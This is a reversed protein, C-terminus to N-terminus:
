KLEISRRASATLMRTLIAAVESRQINSEPNFTGAADSGILIGARYFAYIRAAYPDSLKVDPIANDAVENIVAYESEAIAGYFINVFDARSAMIDAEASLDATIIGHELAYTMYTAYWDGKGVELTVTGNHYLQHLCAALKIVEAFTINAGPEFTTATKGNILGSKCAAEVDPRYWADAPVDSFPFVFDDGDGTKPVPTVPTTTRPATGKVSVSIEPDKGTNMDFVITHTGNRLTALYEKTLTYTNGDKTYDTGEKLVTDGNKVQMLTGSGPTLTVSLDQNDDNGSSKSFSGTTKDLTSPVVPAAPAATGGGSGGGGGGGGGGSGGGSGGTGDSDGASISKYNATIIVASAPMTFTTTESSVDAFSGGNDSTWKDFVQGAPATGATITIVAGAAYPGANTTDTGNIVTLAYTSVPEAKTTFTNGSTVAAMENGVADRFGSINCTYTTSGSLGSLTYNATKGDVSWDQFTLSTVSPSLSVSGVPEGGSITTDMAESFTISLANTNIAEDTGNPSVSSVIPASNDVLFGTGNITGYGNMGVALTITAVPTGAFDTYNDGNVQECFVKLIYNDVMLGSMPISFVGSTTTACDALKGYYKVGSSNELVCSLYQNPGSTAGTYRFRIEDTSNTTAAFTLAPTAITDDLVTLKLNEGVPQAPILGRGATAASKVSAGSADSTFLVSALNLNFTPRLAVFSTTMPFGRRNVFGTNIVYTGYNERNGLSRFWWAGNGDNDIAGTSRAFDTNQAIRDDDDSFYNFGYDNTTAEQISLLFIKDETNNGNNTGFEPNDPNEVVTTSISNQEKEGFARSMFGSTNDNLWARIDSTEWTVVTNTNHYRRAELLKESLLFLKGNENKLVRWALPEIAYYNGQDNAPAEVFVFETDDNDIYTTGETPSDPVNAPTYQSQPYVGYYVKKGVDIISTDADIGVDASATISFAPCLSLIM